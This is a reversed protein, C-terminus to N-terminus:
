KDLRSRMFPLMRGLVTDRDIFYHKLAFATHGLVVALLTWNLASHIARLLDANQKNKAILDPLQVLGLYVTPVGSASSFLWGTTPIILILAYLLWHGTVATVRQWGPMPPLPPVDHGLRWALRFAAIFFVTIGLWKHWSVYKLKEPSFPLDAMYYGLPWGVAILLFVIWHLAIAPASYRELEQM